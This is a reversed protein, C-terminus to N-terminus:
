VNFKSLSLKLEDAMDSLNMASHTIEEISASQEESAAAVNQTNAASTAISDNVQQMTHSMESLATTLQEISQQTGDFKTSLSSIETYIEQFSAGAEKFMVSSEQLNQTSITMAEVAQLSEEKVGNIRAQIDSAANQSQDALKRVEEAVVAFGKGHEGARAAEISANLALLNTQDTIASILNVIQGIENSYDNLRQIIFATHEIKDSTIALQAVAKQVTENGAYATSTAVNANQAVEKTFVSIETLDHSITTVTDNMHNVAESQTETRMAVEQVSSTIEEITASSQQVNASLEVSTAAVQESNLSVDGILGRLDHVMKFVGTTLQAIEDNTKLEFPEVTLDGNAATQVFELTEHIPKLTRRTIFWATVISLLIAIVLVAVSVWIVLSTLHKIFSADMDLGLIIDTNDFPIFISKHVGYEDTYIDSIQTSSNDLATHMKPDFSYSNNHNDTQSLAVIHESGTRSLVYVNEVGFNQQAKNIINLLEEYAKNDNTDAQEVLNSPIDAKIEKSVINLKDEFEPLMYNNIIHMTTMYLITSFVLAVITVPLTFSMMFKMFLSNKYNRMFKM